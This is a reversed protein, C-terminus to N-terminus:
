PGPTNQKLKYFIMQLHNYEKSVLDNREPEPNLGSPEMQIFQQSLGHSKATHPSQKALSVKKQWYYKIELRRVITLVNLMRASIAVIPWHNGKNEIKCWDAVFPIDFLMDRGFHSCRPISKTSHSLYPLNGMGCQRSLCQCWQPYSFQGYRNWSHTADTRPSSTHM